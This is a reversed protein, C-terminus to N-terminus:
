AESEASGGSGGGGGTSGGLAMGGLWMILGVFSLVLLVGRFISMFGNMDAGFPHALDITMSGGGIVAPYSVSWVPAVAAGELPSVQNVLWCPIGFPFVNCPTRLGPIRIGPLAPGTPAAPGTGAAPASDPNGQVEVATAPAIQSGSAPDVSVAADPGLQLDITDGTLTHTVVATFGAVQLRNVYHTTLENPLIPPITLDGVAPTTGTGTDQTTTSSSVSSSTSISGSSSSQGCDGYVSCHTEYIVHIMNPFREPHANLESMIKTPNTPALAPVTAYTNGSSSQFGPAMPSGGFPQYSCPVGGGGPNWQAPADVADWGAPFGAASNGELRTFLFSGYKGVLSLGALCVGSADDSGWWCGTAGGMTILDNGGAPSAATGCPDPSSYGVVTPYVYSNPSGPRTAPSAFLTNGVEYAIFGAAAAALIEPSSLAAWAGVEVGGDTAALSGLESLASQGLGSSGDAGLSALRDGLSQCMVDCTGSAGGGLPTPATAYTNNYYESISSGDGSIAQLEGSTDYAGATAPNVGAVALLATIV